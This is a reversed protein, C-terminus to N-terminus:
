IGSAGLLNGAYVRERGSDGDSSPLKVIFYGPQKEKDLANEWYRFPMLYVARVLRNRNELM